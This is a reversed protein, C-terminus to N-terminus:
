LSSGEKRLREVTLRLQKNEAKLEEINGIQDVKYRFGIAAQGELVLYKQELDHLNGELCGVTSTLNNVMKCFKDFIKEQSLIGQVQDKIEDQTKLLLDIQPRVVSRMIDLSELNDKLDTVDTELNGIKEQQKEKEDRFCELDDAVDSVTDEFLEVVNDVYDMRKLVKGMATDLIEAKKEEADKVEEVCELLDDLLETNEDDM